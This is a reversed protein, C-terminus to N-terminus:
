PISLIDRNSIDFLQYNACYMGKGEFWALVVKNGNTSLKLFTVNLKAGVLAEQTIDCKLTFAKNVESKTVNSSLVTKAAEQQESKGILLFAFVLFIVTKFM